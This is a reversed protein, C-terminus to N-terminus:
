STAEHEPISSLRVEIVCYAEGSIFGAQGRHTQTKRFLKGKNPKKNCSYAIVEGSLGAPVTLMGQRMLDLRKRDIRNTADLAQAKRSWKGTFENGSIVPKSVKRAQFFITDGTLEDGIQTRLRAFALVNAYYELVKM